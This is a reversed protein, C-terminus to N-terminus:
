AVYRQKIKYRCDPCNLFKHGRRFDAQLPEGCDPCVYFRKTASPTGYLRLVPKLKTKM